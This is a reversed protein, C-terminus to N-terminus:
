QRSIETILLKTALCNIAAIAESPMVALLIVQPVFPFSQRDLPSPDLFDSSFDGSILEVM